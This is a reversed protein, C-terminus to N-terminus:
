RSVLPWEDPLGVIGKGRASSELLEARSRTVARHVPDEVGYRSLIDAIRDVDLTLEGSPGVALDVM